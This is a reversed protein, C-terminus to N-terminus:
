IGEVASSLANVVGDIRQDFLEVVKKMTMDGANVTLNIVRQVGSNRGSNLPNPQTVEPFPSKRLGNMADTIGRIGNELPTPSGPTLWSPLHLSDLSRSFYSLRQILWDLAKSVNVISQVIVVGFLKGIFSLVPMINNRLFASLAPFRALLFEVGKALLKMGIEAVLKFVTNLKEFVPILAAQIMDIFPKIKEYFEEWKARMYELAVPIFRVLYARVRFFVDLLFSAFRKVIQQIGGFNAQWAQYVVYAILAVAGMIVIVPWWASIFAVAAPIAVMFIFAGIAAGIAALAAVIVGQNRQFWGFTNQIFTIVAPLKSVVMGAFAGISDSLSQIFAITEPRNLYENVMKALETLKPLVANGITEAIDGLRNKLITIQGALTKGAAEASGGFEKQLEQLIMKQAGIVDGSEVMSKIMAQQADTFNVGVRSLANIGQIPDNLAKGLQTASSKLDQGLAQSMDLITKTADPFVDKGINTFTLLLNEAGVIAEDEFPTIKALSSALENVSEATMGAVGGTSKLVANLQSNVTEADSAAKVSFALATGFLGAAVAAGKMAMSLFNGGLVAMGSLGANFDMALNKASTIGKKYASSDLGLNVLLEEVVMKKGSQSDPYTNM